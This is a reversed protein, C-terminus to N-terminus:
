ELNNQTLQASLLVTGLTKNSVTVSVQAKLEPLLDATSDVVIRVQM